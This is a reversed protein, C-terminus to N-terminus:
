GFIDQLAPKANDIEWRIIEMSVNSAPEEVLISVGSNFLIKTKHFKVKNVMTFGLDIVAEVSNPMIFVQKPSKVNRKSFSTFELM